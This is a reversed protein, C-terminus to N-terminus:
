LIETGPSLVLYHAHELRRGAVGHDTDAVQELFNLGLVRRAEFFQEGADMKGLM